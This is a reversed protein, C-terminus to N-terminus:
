LGRGKAHSEKGGGGGKLGEMVTEKNTAPSIVFSKLYRPQPQVM